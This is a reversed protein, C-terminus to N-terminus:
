SQTTVPKRPSYAQMRLSGFSFEDLAEFVEAVLDNQSPFPGLGGSQKRPAILSVSGAFASRNSDGNIRAVIPFGPALDVAEKEPVFMEITAKPGLAVLKCLAEGRHLFQGV